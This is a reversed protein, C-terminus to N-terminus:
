KKLNASLDWLWGSNPNEILWRKMLNKRSYRQNKGDTPGSRIYGGNILDLDGFPDHVHFSHSDYGILTIWHGGGTPNSVPGRHLIGVPVPCGADLIKLLDAESGNTRFAHKLGLHSLAKQHASQSVTDGYRLVLRLYDDDDNILKPNIYEIVMAIASSQCSREGHGTKSDRQYYYIVNLPFRPRAPPTNIGVENRYRKAFERLEAATLVSQLYNFGDDQWQLGKYNKAADLIKIPRDTQPSRTSMIKVLKDAYAPDTAYGESVLMKAANERSSARNVGKYTKWDKYWRDVLYQVCEEPSDFDQFEDLIQIPKGNVYETTTKKTGQGKIGFYNNKGSLHDGWGSELAWQAAVLEPYKAGAKTALGCIMEWNTSGM